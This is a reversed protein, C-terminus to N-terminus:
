RYSDYGLRGLSFPCCSAYPFSANGGPGQSENQLEELADAIDDLCRMVHRKIASADRLREDLSYVSHLHAGLKNCWKRFRLLTEGAAQATVFRSPASDKALTELGSTIRRTRAYIPQQGDDLVTITTNAESDRAPQPTTTEKSKAYPDDLSNTNGSQTRPASVVPLARAHSPSPM